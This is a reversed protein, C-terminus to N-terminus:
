WDMGEVALTDWPLLSVVTVAGKSTACWVLNPRPRSENISSLNIFLGERQNEKWYSM